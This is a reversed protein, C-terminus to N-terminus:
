RAAPPQFLELTAHGPLDLYCIRGGQNPGSTIATPGAGAISAGASIARALSEDLQDTRLSLHSTGPTARDPLESRPESLYEILELKVDESFDYIAIDLRAEPFGTLDAIYDADYVRRVVPETGLFATWFGVATELDGVSLGIHDLSWSPTPTGGTM